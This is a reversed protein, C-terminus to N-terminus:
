ILSRQLFFEAIASIEIQVVETDQVSCKVWCILSYYWGNIHVSQIEDKNGEVIRNM